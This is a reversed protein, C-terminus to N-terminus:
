TAPLSLLKIEITMPMQHLALFVMQIWNNLIIDVGAMHQIMKSTLNDIGNATIMM